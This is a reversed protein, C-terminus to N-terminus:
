ILKRLYSNRLKIEHYVWSVYCFQVFPISWAWVNNQVASECGFFSSPIHCVNLDFIDLQTRSKAGMEKRNRCAQCLRWLNKVQAVTAWLPQWVCTLAPMTGSKQRHGSCTAARSGSVKAQVVHFQLSTDTDHRNKCNWLYSAALLEFGRKPKASNASHLDIGNHQQWLLLCFHMFGSDCAVLACVPRATYQDQTRYRIRLQLESKYTVSRKQKELFMVKMSTFVVLNLINIM